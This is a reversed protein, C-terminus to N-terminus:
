PRGTVDTVLGFEAACQGPQWNEIQRVVMGHEKKTMADCVQQMSQGASSSGVAESALYYWMYSKSRDEPLGEFGFFYLHGLENRAAVDGMDADSCLTQLKAQEAPVKGTAKLADSSCQGPRWAAVLYKATHREDASMSNNTRDMEATDEVEHPEAAQVPETYETLQASGALHFWMCAESISQNVGEFDHYEQSGFRYLNGLENRASTYGQDASRCLWILNSVCPAESYLQWQAESDGQQAKDQLEQQARETEYSEKAAKWDGAIVMIKLQQEPVAQRMETVLEQALGNMVSEETKAEKGFIFLGAYPLMWWTASAEGQAEAELCQQIDAQELDILGARLSTSWTSSSKIGIIFYSGDDVSNKRDTSSLAIVYRLGMATIRQRVEPQLLESIITETNPDREPFAVQFVTTVEVVEINRDIDVLAESFQLVEARHFYPAITMRTLQAEPIDVEGTEAPVSYYVPVPICGVVLLITISLMLRLPYM